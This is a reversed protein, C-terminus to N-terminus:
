VTKPGKVYRDKLNPIIRLVEEVSRPEDRRMKLRLSPLFPAEEGIEVEELRKLFSRLAKLRKLVERKEEVSLNLLVLDSLYELEEKM